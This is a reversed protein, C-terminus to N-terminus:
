QASLFLVCKECRDADPLKEWVHDPPLAAAGPLGCATGGSPSLAHRPFPVVGGNDTTALAVDTMPSMKGTPHSKRATARGRAGIRRELWSPTGLARM